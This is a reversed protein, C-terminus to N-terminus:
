RRITHKGSFYYISAHCKTCFDDLSSNTERSAVIFLNKYVPDKHAISPMSGNWQAYIEDHCIGCVDPQAYDSPEIVSSYLLMGSIVLTMSSVIILIVVSRLGVMENVVGIRCAIIITNLYIVISSLRFIFIVNRLYEGLAIAYAATKPFISSLAPM